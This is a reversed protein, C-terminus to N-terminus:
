GDKKLTNLYSFFKAVTIEKANLIVGQHKEIKNVMERFTIEEKVEYDKLLKEELKIYNLIVRDGSQVYDNKLNCINVKRELMEKYNESIGFEEIFEEYIEEWKAELDKSTDIDIDRYSELKKLYSFNGTEHIKQWNWYPLNDISNYTNQYKKM